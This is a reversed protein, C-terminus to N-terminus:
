IEWALTGGDVSAVFPRIEGGCFKQLLLACAVDKRQLHLTQGKAAEEVGACFGALPREPRRALRPISDTKNLFKVAVPSYELSLTDVIVESVRKYDEM